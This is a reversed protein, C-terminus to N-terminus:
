IKNQKNRKDLYKYVAEDLANQLYIFLFQKFLPRSLSTLLM